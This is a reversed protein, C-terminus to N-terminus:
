RLEKTEPCRAPRWNKADPRIFVLYDLFSLQYLATMRAIDRVTAKKNAKTEAM